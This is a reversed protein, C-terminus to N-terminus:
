RLRRYENGSQREPNHPCFRKIHGAENCYFCIVRSDYERPRAGNGVAEDNRERRTWQRVPTARRPARPLPLQDDYQQYGEATRGRGNWRSRTGGQQYGRRRPRREYEEEEEEDEEEDEDESDGDIPRRQNRPLSKQSQKKATEKKLGGRATKTTEEDTDEKKKKADHIELAAVLQEMLGQSTFSPIDRKYCSLVEEERHSAEVAEEEAAAQVAEDFTKCKKRWVMQRLSSKLGRIFNSKRMYDLLKKRAERKAATEQRLQEDQNEEGDEGEMKIEQMEPGLALLSLKRVTQAWEQVTKTGQTGTNLLYQHWQEKGSTIFREKLVTQLEKWTNIKGEDRLQEAHEGAEGRLRFMAAKFTQEENWGAFEAARTLMQIWEDLNQQGDYSDVSGLVRYREM